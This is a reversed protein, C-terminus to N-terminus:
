LSGTSQRNASVWANFNFLHFLVYDKEGLQCKWKMATMDPSCLHLLGLSHVCQIDARGSVIVWQDRGHKVLGLTEQSFPWNYPEPYSVASYCYMQLRRVFPEVVVTQKWSHTQKHLSYIALRDLSHNVSATHWLNWGSPPFSLQSVSSSPGILKM